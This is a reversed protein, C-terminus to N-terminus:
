IENESDTMLEVLKHIHIDMIDLCAVPCNDENLILPLETCGLIIAEIGDQEKMKSIIQLLEEKTSDKVIGLELEKSIRENVLTMNDSSPTVIEIGKDWFPKKLYDKQMTFITGLLGLRRYGRQVAVDSVTEPISIFPVDVSVKLQDYVIHMTGATLAVIDAGGSVLNKLPKAIYDTLESYKENAVYDLAKNLNVSEIAIEPFATGTTKKNFLSNIKKYYVLTSEPGTGGVLGLKKM